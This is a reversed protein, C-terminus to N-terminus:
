RWIRANLSRRGAGLELRGTACRAWLDNDARRQLILRGAQDIVVASAAPVLSNAQPADPDRYYDVRGM